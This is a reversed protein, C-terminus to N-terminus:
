QSAVNSELSCGKLNKLGTCVLSNAGSVHEQPLAGEHTGVIEHLFLQQVFKQERTKSWQILSTLYPPAFRNCSRTESAFERM